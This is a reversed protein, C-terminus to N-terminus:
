HNGYKKEGATIAIPLVNQKPPLPCTAFETFACPPNYSKNFDIIVRDNEDAPQVYMYRGSPYTEHENTKDGFIVFYEPGGESLADLGYETGEIEFVLRGPNPQAYTQGVINTIEITREEDYKEFRGELRWELNVPYREVGKFNKVAESEKDRLRVALQGNREIVNWELSGHKLVPYIKNEGDFVLLEKVVLTDQLIEVGNAVNITVKNNQVFFTGGNPAMKDPFILDNASDSGFTNFGEELWYLGALNVWGHDGLLDQAVRKAHWDNIEKEYAVKDIRQDSGSNCSVILLTILAASVIKLKM